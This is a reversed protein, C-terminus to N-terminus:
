FQGCMGRYIEESKVMVKRTASRAMSIRSGRLLGDELGGCLSDKSVHLLGLRKGLKLGKHPEGTSVPCLGFEKM